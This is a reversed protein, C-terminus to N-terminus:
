NAVKEVFQKIKELYKEGGVRPLDNHEAEPVLWLEKSASTAAFLEQSMFLPVVRDATGHMFLIPTQLSQIKTLSDFRQTLIWDLPFIKYQSMQDAMARMSTFTGDVIIGALDSHRSALEIAVAGGLSHGYLVIKKPDIQKTTTLYQWATEADEYVLSENPFPGSSYGYGRYDILLVSLGLQHFRAAQSVTDGNNSGNGHFYLIVPAQHNTASIWWGHIKGTSVELWVEEYALQYDAPTAKIVQSPVFILRTQGWRLLGCTILYITLLIGGLLLTMKRVEKFM